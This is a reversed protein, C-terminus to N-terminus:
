AEGTGPDILRIPAAPPGGAIEDALGYRVAEHADFTRRADLDARVHEASRGTAEALRAVFRAADAENAALWSEVDRVAGEFGGTPWELRLQTHRMVRRRSCCCFAALVAGRARGACTAHVPVGLLDITDIVAFAGELTGGEGDVHLEVPADGDADLTMLAIALHGAREDDLPGRLFVVRREFLGAALDPDGPVDGIV